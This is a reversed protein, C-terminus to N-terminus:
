VLRLPYQRRCAALFRAFSTLFRYATAGMGAPKLCSMRPRHLPVVGVGAGGWLPSPIAFWPSFRILLLPRRFERGRTPTHVPYMAFLHAFVVRVTQRTKRRSTRSAM